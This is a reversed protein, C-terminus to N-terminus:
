WRRSSSPSRGSGSSRTPRTPSRGSRNAYGYSKLFIPKGYRALLITGSFESATVHAAAYEDIRRTLDSAAPGAQANALGSQAFVILIATTVGALAALWFRLRM